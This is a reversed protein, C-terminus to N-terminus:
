RDRMTTWAWCSPRHPPPGCKASSSNNIAEARVRKEPFALRGHKLTKNAKAYARILRINYDKFNQMTLNRMTSLVCNLVSWRDPQQVLEVCQRSLCP